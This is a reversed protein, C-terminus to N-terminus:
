LIGIYQLREYSTCAKVEVGGITTYGGIKLTSFGNGAKTGLELWQSPNQALIGEFLALFRQGSSTPDQVVKKTPM